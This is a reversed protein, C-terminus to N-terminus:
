DRCIGKLYLQKKTKKAKDWKGTKNKSICSYTVEQVSFLVLMGSGKVLASKRVFGERWGQQPPNTRALLISDHNQMGASHNESCNSMDKVLVYEKGQVDTESNVTTWCINTDERHHLGSGCPCRVTYWNLVQLMLIGLHFIMHLQHYQLPSDPHKKKVSFM